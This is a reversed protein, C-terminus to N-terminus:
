RTCGRLAARRRRVAPQCIAFIKQAILRLRVGMTPPQQVAPQALVIEGTQLERFSIDANLLSVLAPGCPAARFPCRTSTDPYPFESGFTRAAKGLM